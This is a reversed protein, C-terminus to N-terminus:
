FFNNVWEVGMDNSLAEKFSDMDEQKINRTIRLVHEKRIYSKANQKIFERTRDDVPQYSKAIFKWYRLLKTPNGKVWLNWKACGEEGTENEEFPVPIRLVKNLTDIVGQGTPDIVVKNIPDYCLTNITFDRYLPELHLDCGITKIGNGWNEIDNNLGNIPKGELYLDSLTDGFQVLGNLTTNKIRWSNQNAISIIESSSVGFGMDIDKIKSIPIGGVIDRVSGGIVYVPIGREFLTRFIENYKVTLGTVEESLIRDFNNRIENSEWVLLQKNHWPAKLNQNSTCTLENPNNTVLRKRNHLRICLKELRKGV